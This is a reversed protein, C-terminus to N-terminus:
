IDAMDQAAIGLLWTLPAVVAFIGLGNLLTLGIAQALHSPFPHGTSFIQYWSEVPTGSAMEALLKWYLASGSFDFRM